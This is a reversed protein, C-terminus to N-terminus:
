MRHPTKGTSYATTFGDVRKQVLFKRAPFKQFRNNTLDGDDEGDGDFIGDCNRSSFTM